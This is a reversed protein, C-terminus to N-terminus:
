NWERLSLFHIEWISSFSFQLQYKMVPVQTTLGWELLAASNTNLLGLALRISERTCWTQSLVWLFHRPRECAKAHEPNLLEHWGDPVRLSLGGESSEWLYLRQPVEAPWLQCFSFILYSLGFSNPAKYTLTLVKAEIQFLLLRAASIVSCQHWVNGHQPATLLFGAWPKSSFCCVAFPKNEKM